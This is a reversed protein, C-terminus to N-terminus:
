EPKWELGLAPFLIPIDFAIGNQCILYTANEFIRKLEPIYAGGFPVCIAEFNKACLGVMTIQGTERITEIDFAFQTAQFARVEAISPHTVYNEPPLVMSKKLDSVVAPIFRQDRAIWAPHFTAVARPEEELAGDARVLALPSGRWTKIGETKGTLYRLAKEGLLIVRRWPRGDLVPRVHNRLCQSIAADAEEPSIYSRAEASTPFKNDPPRCSLVNTKSCESDKIGARGLLGGSWQKREEDFRGRLWSGTPGVLPFGQESEQQGPAEAVVLISGENIEPQVFNNEPFLRQMPCGNCTPNDKVKIPM